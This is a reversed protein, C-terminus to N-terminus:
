KALVVNMALYAVYIGVLPVGFWRLFRGRRNATFIFVRFLTLILLMTPLHLYLFIAPIHAGTDVVPLPRAAASAGIVFLVNLIDAGIVNGILLEAHGKRIATIGIVLEPLSTGMAVITAAIVVNPVGWRTALVTVAGILVQAFAIVLVLGMLFLGGLRLWPEHTAKQIVEDGVEQQHANTLQAHQRGWRVSVWLYGGLLALMLFGVWRGLQATQPDGLWTTYCIVALLV